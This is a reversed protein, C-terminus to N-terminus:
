KLRGPPSADLERNKWLEHAEAFPPLDMRLGLAEEAIVLMAGLFGVQYNTDPPDSVMGQVCDKVYEEATM